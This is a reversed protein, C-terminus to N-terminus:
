EERALSKRAVEDKDQLKAGCFPCHLLAHDFYGPGQPTDVFGITLYWVDNDPEHRFFSNPVTLCEALNDCCSGFTKADSM